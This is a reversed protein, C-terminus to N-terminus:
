GNTFTQLNPVLVIGLQIFVFRDFYQTYRKLFLSLHSGFINCYVGQSKETQTIFSQPTSLYVDILKM